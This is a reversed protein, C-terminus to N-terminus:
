TNFDNDMRQVIGLKNAADVLNKINLDYTLKDQNHDQEYQEKWILLKKVVETLNRVEALLNLDRM